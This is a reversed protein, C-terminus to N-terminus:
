SEDGPADGTTFPGIPRRTGGFTVSVATAQQKRRLVALAPQLYEDVFRTDEENPADATIEVHAPSLRHSEVPRAQQLSRVILGVVEAQVTRGNDDACAQLESRVEAPLEDLDLLTAM